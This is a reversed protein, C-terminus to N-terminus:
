PCFKCSWNTQCGFKRVFSVVGIQEVVSGVSLFDQLHPVVRCEQKIYLSRYDESIYGTDWPFMVVESVATYGRNFWFKSQM